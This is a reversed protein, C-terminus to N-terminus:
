RDSPRKLPLKGGLVEEIRESMSSSGPHKGYKWKTLDPEKVNAARAIDAQKVGPHDGLFKQLRAQRGTPSDDPEIQAPVPVNEAALQRLRLEGEAALDEIEVDAAAMVRALVSEDRAAIPHPSGDARRACDENVSDKVARIGIETHSQIASRVSRLHHPAFADPPGFERASEAYAKVFERAWTILYTEAIRFRHIARGAATTNAAQALSTLDRDRQQRAGSTQANARAKASRLLQEVSESKTGAM